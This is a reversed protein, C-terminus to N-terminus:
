ANPQGEGSQTSSGFIIAAIVALSGRSGFIWIHSREILRSLLRPLLLHIGSFDDL